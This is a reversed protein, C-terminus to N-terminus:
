GGAPWIHKVGQEEAEKVIQATKDPSVVILVADVKSPLNKLSPYVADGEVIQANPNIPVLDRRQRKLEKYALNGFKQKNNSAGVFAWKKQKLFLEVNEGSVM